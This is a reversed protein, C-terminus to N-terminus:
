HKKLVIKRFWSGALVPEDSLLRLAPVKELEEEFVVNLRTALHQSIMNLSRRFWAKQKSRLFKDFIFITGGPKLVRAAEHLCKAPQPVVAVILHLVVHDFISSEFPLDMSDGLVWNVSLSPNRLRARSLMAVNFDLATYSHISPLLPLDLGTGVGSILVQGQTEAPMAQLSLARARRFPISVVLDYIPAILSYSHRLLPNERYASKGHNRM